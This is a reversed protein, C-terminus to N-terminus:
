QGAARAIGLRSRSRDLTECIVRAAITVRPTARGIENAPILFHNEVRNAAIHPWRRWEDFANAGADTSALMVQPDRDVVAEVDVTPALEGLDAFVNSGGCLGILESIYHSRNITYLPRGSVQYFVRVVPRGSYQRRIDELSAEYALATSEADAATDALEGIRRLAASIDELTSTRVVEVAYGANRLEDIVHSPTGKDWALLLDPQLLALQEQDVLFADGIVPLSRAADPYDSYASVGVLSAGAGAAFVLETLNPALTVIRDYDGANVRPGAGRDCAALSLCVCLVSAAVGRRV